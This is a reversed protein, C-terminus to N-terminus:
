CRLCLGHTPGLPPRTPALGPRPPTAPTPQRLGQSWGAPTDLDPGPSEDLTDGEDREDAGAIASAGGDATPPVKRASPTARMRRMGSDASTPADAHGWASPAAERPWALLIALLLPILRLSRLSSRM